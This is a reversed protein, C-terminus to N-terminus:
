ATVRARLAPGAALQEHLAVVGGIVILAPAKVEHVKALAPLTELTGDVVREDPCTAREIVAAPTNPPAGHRMLQECIIPLTGLGMYIVTTQRPRALMEWDLDLSRREGEGRGETCLHGTAFVLARAHDRHTLPMGASAAAGQAATIGPIV